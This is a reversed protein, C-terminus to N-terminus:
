GIKEAIRLKASRARVNAAVEDSQSRVMKGIKKLRRHIDVDKIAFGAPYEDGKSEKTIFRKVIRDELSHFSMVCLRGGIALVDLCDKLACEIEELENNIYIRIAQFSRTAPHIRKEKVPMAEEIVDALQKTTTLPRHEVIAKAIRRSFKEEGYRWLVKVIDAEEASNLWDAATEGAEANMRMDLPGDRLFSFGREACDLQPSSVGLDMLIGDVRGFWGCEQVLTKVRSFSAQKISFRSDLFPEEQASNIATIDKDVAMLRGDVGLATLIEKSHGGRGFTLDIYRGEPKIALGKLIEEVMIPQHEKKEIM